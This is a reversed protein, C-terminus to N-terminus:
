LVPITTLAQCAPAETIDQARLLHKQLSSLGAQATWGALSCYLM